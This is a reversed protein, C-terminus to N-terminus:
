IGPSDSPPVPSNKGLKSHHMGYGAYIVFGIILWLILRLWTLPDMSLIVISCSVIGLLPVLYPGGPVRFRRKMDPSKLRLAMVGMCVVIFAFLTGISTMDGLINIPLFAALFAAAIATVIHSFNPTQTKSNLVAFRRSILGDNAMNMAIRSQGLLMGYIVSLYGFAIGLKVFSAIWPIHVQDIVTAVPNPDNAMIKYNVVGVMAGSFVVYIIACLLLSGLIGFPIHKQPNKADQAATSVVDFGVYAFFIMGSARMVGSWGFHGFTGTNPPIFPTYNEMHIYPICLAIVGAVIVLKLIVILGNFFSSSKTGRMLLLTVAAIVIIAPFNFWGHTVTGDALTVRVSPAALLRPDIIINWGRLLSAVYGSWSSAVASAAVTYELILDWGIMWAIMEGLSAYAYAYASGTVPLMGALETYCLGAFGCAVASILFSIMVAPGAYQGAAVGTLSFLGAGIIIGIGLAILRWPGMVRKLATESGQAGSHLPKTRWLSKRM